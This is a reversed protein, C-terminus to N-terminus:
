VKRAYDGDNCTFVQRYGVTDQGDALVLVCQAHILDAEYPIRHRRDGCDIFVGRELRHIQNFDLILPKLCDRGNRFRKRGALRTDVVVAFAAVDMFLDRELKAVDFFSEVVRVDYTFIKEEIFAICVQRHFLMSGEGMEIRVALESEPARGLGGVVNVPRQCANEPNRSTVDSHDCSGVAPSEAALAIREIVFYRQGLKSHNCAARDLDGQSALFDEIAVPPAMGNEHRDLGADLAVARYCGHMEARIEVAPRVAAISDGAGKVGTSQLSHGIVDRSVFEFANATKRVLRRAAGLPAVASWLGSERYFHLHILNGFLKALVRGPHALLM